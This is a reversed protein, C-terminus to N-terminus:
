FATAQSTLWIGGAPPPRNAESRHGIQIPITASKSQFVPRIPDSYADQKKAPIISIKPNFIKKLIDSSSIHPKEELAKISVLRQFIDEPAKLGLGSLHSLFTEETGHDPLEKILWATEENLKYFSTDSILLHEGETEPQYAHKLHNLYTIGPM